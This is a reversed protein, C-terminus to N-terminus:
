FSNIFYYNEMYFKTIWKYIYKWEVLKTSKNVNKIIHFKNLKKNNILNKNYQVM